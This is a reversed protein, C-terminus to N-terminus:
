EIGPVPSQTPMGQYVECSCSDIDQNGISNFRIRGVKRSECQLVYGSPCRPATTKATSQEYTESPGFQEEDTTACGGVIFGAVVIVGALRLSAVNLSM